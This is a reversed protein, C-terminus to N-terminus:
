HQYLTYHTTPGDEEAPAAVMFMGTLVVHTLDTQADYRAAVIRANLDPCQEVSAGSNLQQACMAYSLATPPVVGIGARSVSVVPFAQKDFYGETTTITYEGCRHQSPGAQPQLLSSWPMRAVNAISRAHLAGFDEGHVIRLSRGGAECAIWVYQGPDRAVAARFRLRRGLSDDRIAPAAYGLVAARHADIKAPISAASGHM